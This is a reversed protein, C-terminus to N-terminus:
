HSPHTSPAGTPHTSAPAQPDHAATSHNAASPTSPNAAHTQNQDGHPTALLATCYTDVKDKGGVTTILVTFAPSDLAKGHESGAGATYARCLGELSPSPSADHGEGNASSAPQNEHTPDATTSPAASTTTEVSSSGGHPSPLNGTAAVAAVGGATVVATAAAAAAIKTTLLKALTTKIM